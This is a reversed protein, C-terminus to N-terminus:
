LSPVLDSDASELSTELPFVSVYIAGDFFLHWPTKM